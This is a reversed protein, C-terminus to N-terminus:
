KGGKAKNIAKNVSNAQINCLSFTDRNKISKPFYRHAIELIAAADELARLMEPAAAILYKNGEPENTGDVIEIEGYGGTGIRTTGVLAGTVPTALTGMGEITWKGPTHALPKVDTKEVPPPTVEGKAEEFPRMLADDRGCEPCAAIDEGFVSMCHNCRQKEGDPTVEVPVAFMKARYEELAEPVIALDIKGDKDVDLMGELWEFRHDGAWAKLRGHLGAVDEDNDDFFGCGHGSLSFYVNGGFSREANDLKEMPFGASELYARFAATFKEVSAVFAPSFDYVTNGMLPRTANDPDDAVFLLTSLFNITDKNM